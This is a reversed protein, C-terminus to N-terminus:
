TKIHFPSPLGSPAPSDVISINGSELMEIWQLAEETFKGLFNYLKAGTLGQISLLSYYFLAHRTEEFAFFGTRPYTDNTKLAAIFIKERFAGPPLEGLFSGAIMQGQEPDDELNVTLKKAIRIAAKGEEAKLPLKMNVGLEEIITEFESM